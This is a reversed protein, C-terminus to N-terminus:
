EIETHHRKHHPNNRTGAPAAPLLGAAARASM